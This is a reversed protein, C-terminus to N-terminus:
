NWFCRECLCWKWIRLGRFILFDVTKIHTSNEVSCKERFTVCRSLAVQHNELHILKYDKSSESTGFFIATRAQSDLEKIDSNPLTYWSKLGFVRFYGIHTAENKWIHHITENFPVWKSTFGNHFNFATSLAEAWFCKPVYRHHLTSWVINMNTRDFCESTRNQHPTCAATVEHVFELHKLYTPFLNPLYEVDKASRFVSISRGTHCDAYKEFELFRHM